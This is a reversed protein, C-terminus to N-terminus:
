QMQVIEVQLDGLAEYDVGDKSVGSNYFGANNVKNVYTKIRTKIYKIYSIRTLRVSKLYEIKSNISEYKELLKDNDICFFMLKIDDFSKVYGSRKPMILILPRVVDDM